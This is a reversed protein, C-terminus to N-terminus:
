AAAFGPKNRQPAFHINELLSRTTRALEDDEPEAGDAAFPIAGYQNHNHNSVVSPWGGNTQQAGYSGFHFAPIAASFAEDDYSRSVMKSAAFAQAQQAPSQAAASEFGQQSQWRVKKPVGMSIPQEAGPKSMSMSMSMAPPGVNVNVNVNNAPPGAAGLGNVRREMEASEQAMRAMASALREESWDRLGDRLDDVAVGVGPAEYQFINEYMTRPKSPKPELIRPQEEEEEADRPELISRSNFPLSEGQLGSILDDGEVDPVEEVTARKPGWASPQQGNAAKKGKKKTMEPEIGNGLAAASAASPRGAAGKRAAATASASVAASPKDGWKWSGPVGGKQGNGFDAEDDDDVDAIDFFFFFDTFSTDQAYPEVM